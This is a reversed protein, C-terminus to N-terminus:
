AAFDFVPTDAARGLARQSQVIERLREYTDPSFLREGTKVNVRAPVHEVVVLRGDVELSFTVLQEVLNEEEERWISDM